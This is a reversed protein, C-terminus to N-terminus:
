NKVKKILHKRLCHFIAQFLRKQHFFKATYMMMEQKKWNKHYNKWNQFINNLKKKIVEQQFKQLASMSDLNKNANM